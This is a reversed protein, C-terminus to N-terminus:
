EEGLLAESMGLMRAILKFIKDVAPNLVNEELKYIMIAIPIGIISIYLPLKLTGLCCLMFLRICGWGFFITVWSFAQLANIIPNINNQSSMSKVYIKV